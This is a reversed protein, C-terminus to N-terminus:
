SLVFYLPLVILLFVAVLVAGIAINRVAVDSLIASTPRADTAATGRAPVAREPARPIVLPDHSSPTLAAARVARDTRVRGLRRPRAAGRM